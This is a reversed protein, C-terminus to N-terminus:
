YDYESGTHLCCPPREVAGPEQLASFQCSSSLEATAAEPLIGERLLEGHSLREGVHHNPTSGSIVCSHAAPHARLTSGRSQPLIDVVVAFRQRDIFNAWGGECRVALYYDDGYEEVRRKFTATASQLTNKERAQPGPSLTCNFRAALEPFPGEEKTRRRYHEFILDPSCGRILRFSMGTGAYDARTHRIPPDYALTIRISREGHEVQFPEPIPIRYVAFYDISLEDEAYLVVRADDSFAARELDVQGHGCVARTAEYGLLQMRDRAAEPIEAAGIMLARILNASARPLRSLIQAAGFAVRPAAYSTGSGATFLRDVFAHHLTLVGASALDEGRRLRATVPDFVLTGGIDVLEPKTAGGVGPGVRTFPAPEWERTIPRVRVDKALAPDLGEGHALAGVTLVNMAGAPEFFRNTEELLYRPYETVAQELRNGSRPSRNGSSVVILVDLERALEDLTAAWTGVKGGDYPRKTDGLAIVFIRCGFQRNLTTIAERMQTPVLRRDEFGGQNNVVKASCLRAGRNLTGAALQARLDGFIAVGGVRTGHAFDDATGLTSPVGISSVMIDAILPHDNVGSDIIGM